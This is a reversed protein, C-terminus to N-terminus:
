SYDEENGEKIWRNEENRQGGNLGGGRQLHVEEKGGAKVGREKEKGGRDAGREM